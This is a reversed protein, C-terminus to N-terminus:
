DDRLDAAKGSARAARPTPARDDLKGDELDIEKLIEAFRSEDWDPREKLVKILTRNLLMLTGLQYELEAVRQRLEGRSRRNARERRRADTELAKYPDNAKAFEEFLDGQAELLNGLLNGAQFALGGRKSRRRNRHLRKSRAM